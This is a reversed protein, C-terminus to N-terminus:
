GNDTDKHTDELIMELRAGGHTDAHAQAGTLSQGLAAGCTHCTWRPRRAAPPKPTTRRAASAPDMITAGAPLARAQEAAALADIARKRLKSGRPLDDLEFTV